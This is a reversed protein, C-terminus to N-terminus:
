QAPIMAAVEAQFQSLGPIKSDGTQVIPAQQQQQQNNGGNATKLLKGDALVSDTFSKFSVPTNDKYVETGSETLLKFQGSDPNFDLKYKSEAIKSQILNKATDLIINQPIEKPLGYEYGSLMIQMAQNQMRSSWQNREATVAEAARAKEAVIQANLDSIQKEIEKKDPKTANIKAEELEKIKDALIVWKNHVGEISKISNAIEEPLGHKTMTDALMKDAQAAMLGFFHKHLDPNNRASAMNMLGSNLKEAVKQPFEAGMISPSSLFTKLEADDTAIGASTALQNILDGLTM